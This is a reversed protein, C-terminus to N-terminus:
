QARAAESKAAELLEALTEDNAGLITHRSLSLGGEDLFYWWLLGLVRDRNEYEQRTRSM